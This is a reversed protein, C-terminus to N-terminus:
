RGMWAQEGYLVGAETVTKVKNEMTWVLFKTTM